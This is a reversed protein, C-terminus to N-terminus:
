EPQQTRSEMRGYDFKKMRNTNKGGNVRARRIISERIKKEVAVTLDTHTNKETCGHLAGIGATDRIIEGTGRSRRTRTECVQQYVWM